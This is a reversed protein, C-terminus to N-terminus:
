VQSRRLKGSTLIERASRAAGRSDEAHSAAQQVLSDLTREVADLQKITHYVRELKNNIEHVHGKDKAQDLEKSLNWAKDYLKKVIEEKKKRFDAVNMGVEAAHLSEKLGTLDLQLAILDPDLTSILLMILYDIYNKLGQNAKRIKQMWDMGDNFTIPPIDHLGHEEREEPNMSEVREKARVLAQLESLKKQEGDIQITPDLGVIANFEAENTFRDELAHIVAEADEFSFRTPDADLSVDLKIENGALDKLPSNKPLKSPITFSLPMIAYGDKKAREWYAAYQARLRDLDFALPSIQRASADAIKYSKAGLRVLDDFTITRGATDILLGTGVEKDTLNDWDGEPITLQLQAIKEKGETDRYLNVIQSM